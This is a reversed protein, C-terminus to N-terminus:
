PTRPYKISKTRGGHPHDVPNRAVGRVKPKVGFIQWFGSKNNLLKKKINLSVAGFAVITYLSFLKKVGSPLRVVATHTSMNIKLLVGVTGSSRIYQIPKTPQSSLFSIKSMIKLQHLKFFTPQSLMAQLTKSKPKFYIFQFLKINVPLQLFALGGTLFFILGVLKNM